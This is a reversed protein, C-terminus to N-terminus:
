PNLEGDIATVAAKLLNRAAVLRPVGLYMPKGTREVEVM